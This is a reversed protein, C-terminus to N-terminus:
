RMGFLSISRHKSFGIRKGIAFPQNYRDGIFVQIDEQKTLRGIIISIEQRADTDRETWNKLWRCILYTSSHLYTDYLNRSRFNFNSSNNGKSSRKRHSPGGYNLTNILENLHLYMTLWSLKFTPFVKPSDRSWWLNIALYTNKTTVIEFSHKLM